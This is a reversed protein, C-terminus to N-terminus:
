DAPSSADKKGSNRKFIQQFSELFAFFVDVSYGVLFAIAFPSLSVGPTLNFLGIVLGGIGATLLRALHNGSVYTRDVTPQDFSRLLYAVAGLLAYLVPLVCTALAGYYVSVRQTVNDGFDRVYQYTNIKEAFEWTFRNTL